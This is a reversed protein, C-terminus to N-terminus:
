RVRIVARATMGHKLGPPLDELLRIKVWISEGQGPQASASGGTDQSQTHESVQTVEGDFYHRPGATIRVKAHQGVGVLPADKERVYADVWFGKSEDEVLAVTEGQSCFEGVDPYIRTVTGSISSTVYARALDDKARDLEHQTQALQAQSSEVRRDAVTVEGQQAEALALQAQAQALEAERAAVVQEAAKVDEELAGAKLRQLDLEAQRVASKQVTLQTKAIELAHKSDIGEAVLEESQTVEAQRLAQLAQASDLRAQAADIDEQRSGRKLRELNARAEECQATAVQVQAQASVLNAARVQRTMALNAEAQSLQSEQAKVAAEAAGLAARLGTDDQRLLKQDPKVHDQEKVFKEALPASIRSPLPVVVAHLNASVATVHTYSWWIWIGIAIVAIGLFVAGGVILRRLWRRQKPPPEAGRAQRRLQYAASLNTEQDAM